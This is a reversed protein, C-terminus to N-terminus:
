QMKLTCIVKFVPMFYGDKNTMVYLFGFDRLDGYATLCCLFISILFKLLPAPIYLYRFPSPYSAM